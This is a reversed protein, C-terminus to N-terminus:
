QDWWEVNYQSIGLENMFQIMDGNDMVTYGKLYDTKMELEWGDGDPRLDTYQMLKGIQEDNLHSLGIVFSSSSSNSVFGNRIKM